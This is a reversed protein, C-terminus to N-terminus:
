QLKQKDLNVVLVMLLVGHWEIRFSNAVTLFLVFKEFDFMQGASSFVSGADLVVVPVCVPFEEGAEGLCEVIGAGSAILLDRLIGSAGASVGFKPPPSRLM